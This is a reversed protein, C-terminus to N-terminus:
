SKIDPVMVRRAPADRMEVALLISNALRRLHLSADLLDVFYAGSFQERAWIARRTVIRCPLDM